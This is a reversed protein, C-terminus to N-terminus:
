WDIGGLEVSRLTDIRWVHVNILRPSQGTRKNLARHVRGGWLPTVDVRLADNEPAVPM